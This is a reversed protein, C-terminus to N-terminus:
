TTKIPQLDCIQTPDFNSNNELKYIDHTYGFLLEPVPQSIKTGRATEADSPRHKKFIPMRKSSKLGFFNGETHPTIKDLFIRMLDYQDLRRNWLGSLEPDNFAVEASPDSPGANPHFIANVVAALHDPVPESRGVFKVHNWGLNADRYDYRETPLPPIHYHEDEESDSVINEWDDYTSTFRTKLHKPQELTESIQSSLLGRPQRVGDVQYSDTM